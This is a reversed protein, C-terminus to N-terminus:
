PEEDHAPPTRRCDAAPKERRTGAVDGESPAGERPEELPLLALRDAHQHTGEAMSFAFFAVGAGALVLSVFVLLILVDVPLEPALPRGDDGRHSAALEGADPHCGAVADHRRVLRGGGRRRQLHFRLPPKPARDADRPALCAISADRPRPGADRLLLRHAGPPLAPRHGADGVPVRPVRRPQREPWGWSLPHRRRRPRRALAGKGRAHVRRHRTVRAPRPVPRRSSRPRAPRRERDSLEYGADGLRRLERAADPRLEECTALHARVVGDVAYLLDGEADAAGIEADTVAEPSRRRGCKGDAGFPVDAWGPAGLRHVHGDIHSELGAGPVETVEVAPRLALGRDDLARAVALSKPHTSRAALDYLAAREASDLVDLPAADVLRPVGTTLTGTKDLVIRRVRPARNLFRQTRVFLGARRLGGYFLEHALPTAIGFACPCTVVLVATAVETARLLDGTRVLWFAVGLAAAVLVFLVYLFAMDTFRSRDSRPRVGPGGEGAGEAEPTRLLPVLPSAAFDTVAGLRAARAGANFAGAPVTEGRAFVRPASEGRIWDLSFSGAAELLEGDVPVLDGPSVLLADGADIERCAVTRVEGGRIRRALLGDVGDSELLQRRNRELVRASLWRGLLMLAIFVTISDLYAARGGGFFFSWTSGAFALVIGLAIPTDLHLLGRRLGRWSSRLFVSGGVLVSVVSLAYDLRSVLAYLPGARLGLYIAASLLMTNLALAICIGTRLLLDDSRRPAQAHSPGFLYGFRAVEEVFRRLPFDSSVALEATGLAPNVLVRAAGPERHFLEEILWVCASCHIGQVDLDIRCPGDERAVRGELAELWKTDRKEPHLEPVPVGRRGRLAYYRTLGGVELLRHVTRCGACCYDDRADPSLPQGCHACAPRAGQRRSASPHRPADPRALDSVEFM